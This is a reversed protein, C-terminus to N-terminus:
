KKLTFRNIELFNLLDNRTHICGPVQIKSFGTPGDPIRTLYTVSHSAAIYKVDESNVHISSGLYYTLIYDGLLIDDRGLEQNRSNRAISFTINDMQPFNSYKASNYYDQLPEMVARAKAPDHEELLEHACNMVMKPTAVTLFEPFCNQYVSTMNRMLNNALLQMKSEEMGQKRFSRMKGIMWAWAENCDGLPASRTQMYVSMFEQDEKKPSPPQINGNKSSATQINENKPTPLPIEQKPSPIEPASQQKQTYGQLLIWAQKKTILNSDALNNLYSELVSLDNANRECGTRVSESVANLTKEFLEQSYPEKQDAEDNKDLAKTIASVLLILLLYGLKFGLLLGILENILTCVFLVGIYRLTKM